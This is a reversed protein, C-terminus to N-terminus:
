TTKESPYILSVMDWAYIESTKGGSGDEVRQFFREDEFSITERKQSGDTLSIKTSVELDGAGGSKYSEDLLDSGDADFGQLRSLLLCPVSVFADCLVLSPDYNEALAGKWSALPDEDSHSYVGNAADAYHYVGDQIYLYFDGSTVSSSSDASSVLREKRHYYHNAADFSVSFSGRLDEREYTTTSTWCSPLVYGEAGTDALFSTLRDEAEARTLPKSCGLLMALAPVLIILRQYKNM